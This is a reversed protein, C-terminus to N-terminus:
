NVVISLINIANYIKHEFVTQNTTLDRAKVAVRERHQHQRQLRERYRLAGSGKEYLISGGVIVWRSNVGEGREVCQIM